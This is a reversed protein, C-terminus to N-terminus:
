RLLTVTGSRIIEKGDFTQAVIHYLYTGLEQERGKFSGDWGKNLDASFYLKEGWRNFVTMEMSNIYTNNIGFVDNEGDGNPTFANPIVLELIVPVLTSDSAICGNGDVITLYYTTTQLPSANPMECDPCDLTAEPSWAYSAVSIANSSPTLTVPFGPNVPFYDGADVTLLPPEM